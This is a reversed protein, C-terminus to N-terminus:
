RRPVRMKVRIEGSARGPDEFDAVRAKPNAARRDYSHM